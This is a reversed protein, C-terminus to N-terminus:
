GAKKRTCIERVAAANEAVQDSFQTYMGIIMADTLKINDLATELAQKVQTASDIQRGAALVKYALCPKRAKQIVKFMRPPDSPLYIEGLPM